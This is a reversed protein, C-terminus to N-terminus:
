IISHKDFEEQKKPLKNALSRIKEMLKSVGVRERRDLEALTIKIPINRGEAYLQEAESEAYFMDIVRQLVGNHIMTNCELYIYQLEKEEYKRKEIFFAETDERCYRKYLKSILKKLMM